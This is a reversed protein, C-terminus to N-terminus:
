CVQQLQQAAVSCLKVVVGPWSCKSVWQEFEGTHCICIYGGPAKIRNIGWLGCVGNPCDAPIGEPRKLSQAGGGAKPHPSHRPKPSHVPRTHNHTQTHNRNHRPHTANRGLHQYLVDVPVPGTNFLARLSAAKTAPLPSLTIGTQSSGTRYKPLDEEIFDFQVGAATASATEAGAEATCPTHFLKGQTLHSLSLHFRPSNVPM